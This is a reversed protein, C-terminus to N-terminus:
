DSGSWANTRSASNSRRPVSPASESSRRSGNVSPWASPPSPRASSGVSKTSNRSRSRAIEVDAAQLADGAAIVALFDQVNPSAVGSKSRIMAITDAVVRKALNPRQERLADESADGTLAKGTLMSWALLGITKADAGADPVGDLPISTLGLPMVARHTGQEFLLNDATVGRHVVGQDRAWDLVGSVRQLVSAVRPFSFREGSSLLEALSTGRVRESVVAFADKGLWLGDLVRPVNPHSIRALMQTDSALHSLANNEGGNPASVVTIMVDAGDSRRKGLYTRAADGGRLEGQREYREDLVRLDPANQGESM